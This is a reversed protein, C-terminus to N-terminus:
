YIDRKFYSQKFDSKSIVSLQVVHATIYGAWSYYYIQSAMSQKYCMVYIVRLVCEHLLFIDQTWNQM